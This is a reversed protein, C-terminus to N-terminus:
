IPRGGGRGGLDHHIAVDAVKVNRTPEYLAGTADIRGGALTLRVAHAALPQFRAPKGADAVGLTGDISLAGNAVRWTGAAHSLLLPVAGIQGAGGAVDGGTTGRTATGSLAAVDLRTQRDAPGLLLHIGDVAFGAGAM